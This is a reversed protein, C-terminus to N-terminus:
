FQPAAKWTVYVKDGDMDLVRPIAKKFDEENDLDTTDFTVSWNESCCNTGEWVKPKIAAIEGVGEFLEKIKKSIEGREGLTVGSLFISLFSRKSNTARVAQLDMGLITLKKNIWTQVAEESVLAAELHTRKGNAYKLKAGNMVKGIQLNFLSLLQNDPVKQLEEINFIVAM